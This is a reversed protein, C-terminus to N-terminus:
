MSLWYVAVLPPVLLSLAILGSILVEKLGERLGEAEREITPTKFPDNM